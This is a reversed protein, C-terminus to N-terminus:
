GGGGVDGVGVASFDIKEVTLGGDAADLGIGIVAELEDSFVVRGM